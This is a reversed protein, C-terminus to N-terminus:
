IKISWIVNITSHNIQKKKRYQQMWLHALSLNPVIGVNIQKSKDHRWWVNLTNNFHSPQGDRDRNTISCYIWNWSLLESVYFHWCALDPYADYAVKNLDRLLFVLKLVLTFFFWVDAFMQIISSDIPHRNNPIKNFLVSNKGTWNLM